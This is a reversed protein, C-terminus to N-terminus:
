GSQKDKSKKKRDPADGPKRPSVATFYDPKKPKGGQAKDDKGKGKAKSKDGADASKTGKAAPAREPLINAPAAKAEQQLRAKEMADAAKAQRATEADARKVESQTRPDAAEIEKGGPCPQQSYQNGCRYVQQAAAAGHLGAALLTMAALLGIRNKKM